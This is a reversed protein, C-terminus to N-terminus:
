HSKADEGIAYLSDNELLMKVPLFDIWSKTLGVHSQGHLHFGLRSDRRWEKIISTVESFHSSKLFSNLYVM